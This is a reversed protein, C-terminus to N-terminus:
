AADGRPLQVLFGAGWALHMCALALGAWLGCVARHRLAIGASLAALTAAYLAPLALAPPWLPALAIGAALAAVLAPPAMQRAAPPRAHRRLMRARGRGYRWYQRALAWPTARMIYDLRISSDLWIRGGARALRADLEADENTALRPDYGGVRRWAGLAFGAHHGHDVPGSACGGRHRAGGTGWPGRMALAAGRAFGTEGVADMVTALGAARHAILSDAVAFVYGPPYAAHADIRVLIRHHPAACRAVIRNVAAGQLRAPNDILRINRHRRALQAAIRRTADRSGGDAIVIDVGRMAPANELLARLTGGLHAAEDRVPIAVLIEEPRALRPAHRTPMDM